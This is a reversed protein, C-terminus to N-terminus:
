TIGWESVFYARYQARQAASHAGSAVIVEAVDGTGKLTTDNFAGVTIRTASHTANATATAAASSFNNVYYAIAQTNAGHVLCFATPTTSDAGDIITVGASAVDSRWTSAAQYVSAKGHLDFFWGTAGTANARAAVYVTFPATIASISTNQLIDGGDFTLVTRGGWSASSGQTPRAAGGANTLVVSGVRSTWSTASTANVGFRAHLDVLASPDDLPSWPAGGAERDLLDGAAFADRLPGVIPRITPRLITM